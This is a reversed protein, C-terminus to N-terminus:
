GGREQALLRKCRDLDARLEELAKLLQSPLDASPTDGPTVGLLTTLLLEVRRSARFLDEAAPQWYVANAAPRSPSSGGLSILLPVVARQLSGVQGEMAATHELALERLARSDNPSMAAESDAPFRQALGRLAYARAMAADNWDLVQSSFREFEARGGLQQEMRREMGTVTAGPAVDTAPTGVQGPLRDPVAEPESFQVAVNPMTDLISHIQRQRQPPIGVGSVVVRGDALKVEVPDGLDAGIRHLASLVQLEDSISASKGSALAASRSPEATRVPAETKAAAPNDGSRTTPETIETLEVWEQNRFELKENLPHLDTTRMTLTAATLGGEETTTRIRYWSEAPTEPNAVTTVQDKRTTLQNRWAEYARASLPDNWDYHAGAFLAQIYPAEPSETAQAAGITRVIQRTRTRIRIHRPAPPRSEAVAVARKLLAAAQVSPAERLEYLVAVIVAVAALGAVAWRGPGAVPWQLIRIFRHALSESALSADIREFDRQLDPWPLPPGPLCTELVAKRYRVCDSVTTQLEEVAARCQWCAELHRQVQRASRAPLEGDIYRLLVGDEPHPKQLNSM